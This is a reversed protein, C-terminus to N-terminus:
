FPGRPEYAGPRAGISIFTLGDAGAVPCRTVDPDFRIFSGGRVAVDEGDV